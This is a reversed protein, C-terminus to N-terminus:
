SLIRRFVRLIGQDWAVRHTIGSVGEIERYHELYWTYSRILAEANSFRPQWGLAQEIKTTSVYSDKDATEYVWPYLPSLNLANFLRLAAKIPGAPTPLVRAGNGAVDCLAQVDDKVLGYRQAGVNFTDNAAAAPSSLALAVAEALDEVELLQYHNKGSGVVPIRAGSQVWDFLIQFVGLRATGIFTKPRIITIHQGMARYRECIQEAQIKSIGYPGVGVRPDTEEIPHKIPVGYVATSSIYVFRQVGRQRAAELVMQTGDVNVSYIDEKKWLPLAAAAHIVADIGDMLEHLRKPDRVDGHHFTVGAPYEDPHYDAIDVLAVQHGKETLKHTLHLGLFGAGGTILVRM